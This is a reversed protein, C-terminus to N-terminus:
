LGEVSEPPVMAGEPKVRPGNDVVKEGTQDEWTEATASEQYKQRQGGKRSSESAEMQEMREGDERM